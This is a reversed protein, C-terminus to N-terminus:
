DYYSMKLQKKNLTVIINCILIFPTNFSKKNYM